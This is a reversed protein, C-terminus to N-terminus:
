VVPVAPLLRVQTAAHTSWFRQAEVGKGQKRRKREAYRSARDASTNVGSAGVGAIQNRGLGDDSSLGKDSMRGETEFADEDQEETRGPWEEDLMRECRMQALRQLSDFHNRSEKWTKAFRRRCARERSSDPGSILDELESVNSLQPGFVNCKEADGDFSKESSQPSFRLEKGFDDSNEGRDLPRLGQNGGWGIHLDGCTRLHVERPMACPSPEDRIEVPISPRGTQANTFFLPHLVLEMAAPRDRMEVTLCQLTVNRALASTSRGWTIEPLRGARLIKEHGRALINFPSEAYLMFYFSMGSAWIDVRENWIQGFRLEPASFVQTGRESLMVSAGPGVGIRKASNFDTIKLKSGSSDATLLLNDPKLDRHVIRKLHMYNVGWLLQQFLQVAEQEEFVGRQSVFSKLSGNHCHEMCILLCAPNEHLEEVRVISPHRLTIALNYEDRTFQRIEEDQQAVLKVAVKRGDRMTAVRVTAVSGSGLVEGLDYKSLFTEPLHPLATNGGNLGRRNLNDLPLLM